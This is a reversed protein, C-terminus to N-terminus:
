MKAAEKILERCTMDKLKIKEMETKAAQKAKGLACAFYGQLL